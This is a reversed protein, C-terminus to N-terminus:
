GAARLLVRAPAGDAGPILLPLCIMEYRGPPVERLDLGVAVAVGAELLAVHVPGPDDEPAVSLSDVGVFRVGRAVLERAGTLAFVPGDEGRAAGRHGGFIVRDTGEPVLRQIDAAALRAGDDGTKVVLVEGIMANLSVTEIGGAGRSFHVPAEVHTGSHLGAEIATLTYQDGRDMDSLRRLRVDPDGPYVTMGDTLPITIDIWIRDEGTM